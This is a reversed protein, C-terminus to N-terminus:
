DKKMLYILLEKPKKKKSTIDYIISITPVDLNNKFLLDRISKISYLGEVTNNKTYDEIAEKSSNEGLLKGYCFNRSKESTCTLLLDGIGSYSLITKKNAGLLTLIDEIDHIAETIFMAQTSATVKLGNLIGTAIAIINKVAGCIEVGIMDDTYRIKVYDNAFAKKVIEFTTHNQTAISLGMQSKKIVDHAFTPGSLIAIQNTNIYTNIVEHLFKGSEQQIGKSAILIHQNVAYDKIEKVVDEVFATPIAIIILSSFDVIKKLSTTINIKPSLKFGSLVKENTRERTLLEKEDSFKTWMMVECDNDILINSLAMGYAGCGLIGVRM